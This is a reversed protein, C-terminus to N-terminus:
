PKSEQNFQRMANRLRVHEIEQEKDSKRAFGFSIAALNKSISPWAAEFLDIDNQTTVGVHFSKRGMCWAIVEYVQKRNIKSNSRKWQADIRAHVSQRAQRLAANALIGLPAKTGPHCGVTADCAPFNGCIWAPGKLGHLAGNTYVGNAQCYPCCVKYKKPNTNLQDVEVM